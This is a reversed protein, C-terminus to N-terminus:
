DTISGSSNDPTNSEDKKNTTETKPESAVAKKAKTKQILATSTIIGIVGAVSLLIGAITFTRGVDSFVMLAATKVAEIPAESPEVAATPLVSDSLYSVAWGMVLVGVGNILFVVGIKRLGHLKTKSLFVVGLLCLLGIGVVFPLSKKAVQYAQPIEKPATENAPTSFGLDEVEQSDLSGDSTTEDGFLDSTETSQKVTDNILQNIDLGAPICTIKSINTTDPIEGFACDPLKKAQAQLNKTYTSVFSKELKSVDIDLNPQQSEGELWLYANDIAPSILEDMSKPSLTQELTKKLIKDNDNEDSVKKIVFTSIEEYVKAENVTDVVYQKDGITKNFSYISIFGILAPGLLLVSIGLGIKKLVNMLAM